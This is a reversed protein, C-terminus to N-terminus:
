PQGHPNRRRIAPLGDGAIFVEHELYMETKWNPNIIQLVEEPAVYTFALDLLHKYYKQSLLDLHRPGYGELVPMELWSAPDTIQEELIYLTAVIRALLIRNEPSISGGFRWKRLAQVSVGIAQAIGSWSMGYEMALRNLLEKPPKKTLEQTRMELTFEPQRRQPKVSRTVELGHSESGTLITSESDTFLIKKKVGTAVTGEELRNILLPM